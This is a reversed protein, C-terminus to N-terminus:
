LRRSLATNEREGGEVECSVRVGVVAHIQDRAAQRRRAPPTRSLRKTQQPGPARPGRGPRKTRIERHRVRIGGGRPGCRRRGRPLYVGRARLEVSARRRIAYSLRRIGRVKTALTAGRGWGLTHPSRWAQHIKWIGRASAAAKLSRENQEDFRVDAAKPYIMTTTLTKPRRASARPRALMKTM